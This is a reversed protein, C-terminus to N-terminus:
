NLRTIIPSGSWYHNSAGIPKSGLRRTRSSFPPMMCAFPSRRLPLFRLVTDVRQAKVFVETGDPEYITVDRLDLHIGPFLVIRVMGVKLKRGINQEIQRVFFEKVYDRGTTSRLLFLGAVALLILALTSLVTIRIMRRM